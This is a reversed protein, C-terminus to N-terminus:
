VRLIEQLNLNHNECLLQMFRLLRIIIRTAQQPSPDEEDAKEEEDDELIDEEDEEAAAEEEGDERKSLNYKKLLIKNRKTEHNRIIEFNQVLIDKLSLAFL